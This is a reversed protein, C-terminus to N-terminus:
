SAVVGDVVLAGSALLRDYQESLGRAKLVDLADAGPKSAPAGPAVASRSLRPAPGNTTVLGTDAHERTLSLGHAQVWPDDMLERVGRVPQVGAGAATLLATWEEAPRRAIREDLFAILADGELAEIGALDEIKALAPLLDASAGLFLWGDSARYLRQLPAWGLADQGRPEDWVKGEYDQFFPSQLTCATYALAAKVHQGEGSRQRQLLALAVAYAGMLGTGYDNIPFAQRHPREGAFRAQMGAAAQALQEWGPREEWPAEHGYANISAYIVSPNRRRVEEYSLGLRDARGARLNQLIVDVGDALEWFLARGEETKLDLLVSQKGRNVDNHMRVGGDRNPDDIKVVEAGFEALTRGCTPGALIICLDLVKVGELASRLFRAGPPPASAPAADLWPGLVEARDADPRSAGRRVAGPSGYLRPNVGPQLMTGLAPDEVEIVQKSGRAHEHQMWESSENIISCCTGAANVLDEWERATKTKFLETMRDLLEASQEPHKAVEESLHLGEGRWDQIGVAEIFQEIFRQNAAHFQVWRGDSCEYQRVWGDAREPARKSPDHVRTGRSGIATFTADFLPVEIRQGVGERERANLAMAISVSALFAGYSSSIPIATLVPREESALGDGPTSYTATAAGLVGEWARTQARPDDSAFGPLSCYILRPNAELLLEAGLGLRDMVGPRFNEVLVDASQALRRATARDADDKLDLTISRKGRNWTANGPTQWRPGGPPDIKVVDAGQDALLMGSLPGAIYHGFDVVRIGDLAGAM